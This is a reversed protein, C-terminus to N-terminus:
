GSADIPKLGTVAPGTLVEGGPGFRSGHCPCDWSKETENWQVFCKAHPCVPSLVQSTGDPNKYIALKRDKYSAITAEGPALEALSELEEPVIRDVVFHKVVQANEKIFQSFGTVPSVRGPRFIDEYPSHGSIILDSLIKGALSGFTIGNGGFGTAVYVPGSKGPLRGIYPLGDAPVYYQASWKFDVSSVPFHARVYNELSNFPEGSDAQEGTKHDAGGAILYEKGDIHQSRLYHYPSKMDYVLTDPYREKEHLQVGLVYSRYPACYFHLLNVGPPIHTAYVVERTNVPNQETKLLYPSDDGEVDTVRHNEAIVGGAEIFREALGYVYKMPHFQAQQPFSLCKQFPLPIPMDMLDAVPIGARRAAEEMKELENTEEANGSFVLGERFMFDCSIGLRSVLDYVLSIAEKTADATLRANDKGFKKELIHYPTDIYTNLHATTGSTTGYGLTHAELLICKRGAEQLLFATTIGTIGGGVIAVDYTENQVTHSQLVAPRKLPQWISRTLSDREM